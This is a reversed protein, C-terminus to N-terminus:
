ASASKKRTWESKKLERRKSETRSSREKEGEPKSRVKGIKQREKGM